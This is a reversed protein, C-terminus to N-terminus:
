GRRSSGVNTALLVCGEAGARWAHDVGTMVVSDGPWLPHAGDDLVLSISGELVVDVDLSDTHHMGVVSDAEFRWVALSCQGPEVGLDVLDARGAPRPDPPGSTTKFIADVHLGPVLEAFAVERERVVCSRGSADVGTVLCRM